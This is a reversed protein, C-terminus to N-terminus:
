LKSGAEQDTGTGSHYHTQHYRRSSPSSSQGGALPNVSKTMYAQTCELPCEVPDSTAACRPKTQSAAVYWALQATSTKPQAGGTATDHLKNGDGRLPMPTSLSSPVPPCQANTWVDTADEPWALIRAVDALLEQAEGLDDALNFQVQKLKPGWPLSKVTPWEATCMQTVSPWLLRIEKRQSEQWQPLLGMSSFSLHLWEDEGISHTPHLYTIEQHHSKIISHGVRNTPANVDLTPTGWGKQVPPNTASIMVPSLIATNETGRLTQLLPGTLEHISAGM